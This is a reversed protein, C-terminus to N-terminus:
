QRENKSSFPMYKRCSKSLHWERTRNRAVIFSERIRCSSRQRFSSKSVKALSHIVFMNYVKRAVKCGLSFNMLELRSFVQSPPHRHTMYLKWYPEIVKSWHSWVFDITAFGIGVTKVFFVTHILALSIYKKLCDAINKPLRIM